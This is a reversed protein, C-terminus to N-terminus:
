LLIKLEVRDKQLTHQDGLGPCLAALQSSFAPSYERASESLLATCPHGAARWQPSPGQSVLEAASCRRAPTLTWATGGQFCLSADRKNTKHHQPPVWAEQMSPAREVRSGYGSCTVNSRADWVTAPCESAWFTARDV